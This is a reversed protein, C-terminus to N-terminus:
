CSGHSREGRASRSMPNSVKHSDADESDKSQKVGSQQKMQEKRQRPPLNGPVLGQSGARAAARAGAAAQAANRECAAEVAAAAELTSQLEEVKAQQAQIVQQQETYLDQGLQLRELVGELHNQLQILQEDKRESLTELLKVQDARKAILARLMDSESRGEGVGKAASGACPGPGRHLAQNIVDAWAKPEAVKGPAFNMQVLVKNDKKAMIKVSSGSPVAASVDEFRFSVPNQALVEMNDGIGAEQLVIAGGRLDVSAVRVDGHGDPFVVELVKDKLPRPHEPM